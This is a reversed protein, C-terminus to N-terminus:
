KFIWYVFVLFRKNAYLVPSSKPIAPSLGGTRASSIFSWGACGKRVRCQRTERRTDFPFTYPLGNTVFVMRFYTSVM